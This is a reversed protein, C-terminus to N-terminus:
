QPFLGAQDLLMDMVVVDVGVGFIERFPGMYCLNNKISTVNGGVLKVEDRHDMRSTNM